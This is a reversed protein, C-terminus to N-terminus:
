AWEFKLYRRVVKELGRRVKVAAVKLWQKLLKDVQANDGRVEAHKSLVKFNLCWKV